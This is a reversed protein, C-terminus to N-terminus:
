VGWDTRDRQDAQQILEEARRQHVEPGLTSASLPTLCFWFDEWRTFLQGPPVHVFWEVPFDNFLNILENGTYGHSWDLKKLAAMFYEANHEAM